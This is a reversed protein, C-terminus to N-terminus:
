ERARMGTILAELDDPEPLLFFHGRVTGATEQFATELVMARDTVAGLEILLFDVVAGAMDIALGPVSPVLSRQLVQSVSSLYTSVLINGLERLASAAMPPLAFLDVGPVGMRELLSAASDTSLTVLLNGRIEGLVRMHIGIIVTEAGGLTEPVERLEVARVQPIELLVRQGLVQSLATAANGAGINGVERLTDMERETLQTVPM